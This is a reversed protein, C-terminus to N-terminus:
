SVPDRPWRRPLPGAGHAVLRALEESLVTAWAGVDAVPANVIRDVAGVDALDTVRIQQSDAVEAARDTTRHRILSAGEVPLPTVWADHAGLVRDAPLLALAGGGAGGGLLVSMTPTRLQSLDALCRAIEGALAGAEAAASLEAGQTDIITILPLGWRQALRMGRRAVRLDAGTMGLAAGAEARDAQRHRDQAVIVCGIQDLQGVLLRVVEAREGEHTGSLEQCGTFVELLQAAGARQPSRTRVVADWGTLDAAPDRRQPAPASAPHSVDPSPVEWGPPAVGGDPRARWASLLDVVVERWSAAPIVGDIVGAATLGEPTQIDSPFAAGFLGEYIRPGLFGTLAGPQGFTVDGLSGWTAFVGGTTPNRLYVLYPLGAETHSRVAAAISSMLLFAPTGEQMRTGGSTPLGLVPLGLATAREFAAVIRTAASRGVSGALFDFDGAVVAVPIDGVRASGTSVSEDVGTASRAAILEAQYVEDAAPDALPVDWSRWSDADVVTRLIEATSIRSM